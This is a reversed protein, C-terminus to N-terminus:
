RPLMMPLSAFFSCYAIPRAVTHIARKAEERASWDEFSITRGADLDALGERIASVSEEFDAMDRFETLDVPTDNEALTLLYEAVDKGHLAANTRLRAEVEPDLELMLTM